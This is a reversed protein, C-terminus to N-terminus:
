DNNLVVDAVVKGQQYPFHSISFEFPQGTNLYAVQRFQLVPDTPEIQLADIDEATPKVASVIRHAGSITLSCEHQLYEYISHQLIDLDLKAVAVPMITHEFSYVQNDIYRVRKIEYVADGEHIFLEKQEESTAFRVQFLLIKSTVKHGSGAHTSTGLADIRNNDQHLMLIADQRVFTGAGRKSYLLGAIVLSQVAKHITM